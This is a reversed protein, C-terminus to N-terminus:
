LHYIHDSLAAFLIWVCRDLKARQQKPRINEGDIPILSCNTQDGILDVLEQETMIIISVLRSSLACAGLLPAGLLPAGLLPAGLLPAGLLPAHMM